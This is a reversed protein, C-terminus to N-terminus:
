SKHTTTRFLVHTSICIFCIIELQATGEMTLQLGCLPVAYTIVGSKLSVFILLSFGRRHLLDTYGQPVAYKCHLPSGQYHLVHINKTKNSSLLMVKPM